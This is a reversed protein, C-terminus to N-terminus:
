IKDKEGIITASNLDFIMTNIDSFYEGEVKYGHKTLNWGMLKVLTYLLDKNNWRVSLITKTTNKLFPTADENEGDCPQIAIQKTKENIMLLVHSPRGIKVISTKNFTLGNETISISPLGITLNITKFGELM